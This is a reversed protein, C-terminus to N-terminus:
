DKGDLVRRVMKTFKAKDLPKMAYAKIGLDKAKDEDIRDSHGTCLIIPINPRIKILEQALRDGPMDPMAIDSIILDFKGSEEQFLRLAETSSTKGVVEYGERKLMQKVMKVLSAEDDVLLIRETATPLDESEKVEVEAQVETIPFLVEATTGEGVESMIKIAGDHKKVLGFVVALGMGLGKDVDKTTFYPDFLRDMIEPDIGKGTDKVTLKVYEGATLDEYRAATRDNLVATELRVELIGTEEEMAHVSNSCFNMLIQNIETPNALIMESDCLSEQRIDISAPITARILKLSEKIITSIRLPKRSALTKRAFSLIQRVVDKARLSAARIEKLCDKAPNWEPVDDLALEANGIIIGLINNIEHAIGGALTGISEMKQAQRLKDELQTREKEARMRETIDVLVMRWQIVAGTEDRDAEIDARVWLPSEKERKLPLDISQKEGTEGAKQRATLYISEWGSIIFQTFGSHSLYQRATELLGAGTLNVRTIIGKANLTVYGCPAFEYLDEFERHM